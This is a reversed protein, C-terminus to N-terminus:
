GKLTEIEKKLEEIRKLLVAEMDGVMTGEGTRLWNFNIGYADCISLMLEMSPQRMGTKAMSLASRPFGIRDAIAASNKAQGSATIYSIVKELRNGMTEKKM